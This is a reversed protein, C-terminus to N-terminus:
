RRRRTRKKQRRKALLALALIPAAILGFVGALTAFVASDFDSGYAGPSSSGQGYLYGVLAATLPIALMLGVVLLLTRSRKPPPRHHDM